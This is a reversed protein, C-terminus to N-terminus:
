CAPSAPFAFGIWAGPYWHTRPEERFVLFRRGTEEAFRPLSTSVTTALIAASSLCPAIAQCEAYEVAPSVHSDSIFLDVPGELASLTAVSDGHVITVVQRQAPGVLAGAEPDTDVGLYAGAIGQQANRLLAQGILAASLGFGVGAEVVRRPRLARTLAYWILQRGLRLEPDTVTLLDSQRRRANFSERLERDSAPEDLYERMRGVDLGTVNALLHALFLRSRDTYEYTFNSCERSRFTWSVIEGLAPAYYRVAIAARVPLLLLRGLPGRAVLRHARRRGVTEGESAMGTNTLQNLRCRHGGIARVCYSQPVEREGVRGEGYVDDCNRRRSPECRRRDWNTTM